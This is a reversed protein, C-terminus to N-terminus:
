ARRKLVIARRSVGEGELALMMDGGGSWDNRVNRGIV